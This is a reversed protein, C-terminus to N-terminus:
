DHYKETESKGGIHVTKNRNTVNSFMVAYNEDQNITV